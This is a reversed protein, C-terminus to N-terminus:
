ANYVGFHFGRGCREAQNLFGSNDKALLGNNYYFVNDGDPTEMYALSALLALYWSPGPAESM